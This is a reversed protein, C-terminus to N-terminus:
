TEAFNAPFDRSSSMYPSQHKALTTVSYIIYHFNPLRTRQLILLTRQTMCAIQGDDVQQMYVQM